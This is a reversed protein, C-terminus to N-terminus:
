LTQTYLLHPHLETPLADPRCAASVPEIGRRPLLNKKGLTLKWHLSEKPTRGCGHAIADNIDTRVNCIGYDM